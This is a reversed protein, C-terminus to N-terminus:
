VSSQIAEKLRNNSYLQSDSWWSCLMTRLALSSWLPKQIPYHAGKTSYSPRPSRYELSGYTNNLTRLARHAIVRVDVSLLATVNELEMNQDIEIAFSQGQENVFTLHM